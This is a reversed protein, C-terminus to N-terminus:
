WALGTRPTARAGDCGGPRNKALTFTKVCPRALVLWTGRSAILSREVSPYSGAGANHASNSKACGRGGPRRGQDTRNRQTLAATHEICSRNTSENAWRLISFLTAPRARSRFPIFQLVPRHVPFPRRHFARERRM